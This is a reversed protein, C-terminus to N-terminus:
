KEINELDKSVSSPRIYIILISKHKKLDFNSITDDLDM